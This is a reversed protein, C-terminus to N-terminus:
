RLLNQARQMVAELMALTLLGTNTNRQSPHYCALLTYRGIKYEAGHIFTPRPKADIGPSTKADASLAVLTNDFALKGLTLVVKLYPLFKLEKILHNRCTITEEKSPINDPPVCHVVNTMYTQLLTLGDGPSFADPQNSFGAKFLAPYLFNGAKDGTFM